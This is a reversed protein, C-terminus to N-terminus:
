NESRVEVQRPTSVLQLEPWFPSKSHGRDSSELELLHALFPIELLIAIDDSSVRRSWCVCSSRAKVALRASSMHSFSSMDICYARRGSSTGDISDSVPFRGTLEVARFDRICIMGNTMALASPSTSKVTPSACPLRPSMASGLRM